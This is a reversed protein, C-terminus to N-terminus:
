IGYKMLNGEMKEKFINKLEIFTLCIRGMLGGRGVKYDM